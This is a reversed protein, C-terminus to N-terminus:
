ISPPAPMSVAVLPSVTVFTGQAGIEGASRQM